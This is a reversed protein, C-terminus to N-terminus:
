KSEGLSLVYLYVNKGGSDSLRNTSYLHSNGLKGGSRLMNIFEDQSLKTGALAPGKDTGKGDDGHCSGCQLVVYRGKGAEIDAPDAAPRSGATATAAGVTVVQPAETPQVFEFTPFATLTAQSTPTAAAPGCAALTVILLCFAAFHKKGTTHDRM